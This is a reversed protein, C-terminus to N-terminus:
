GARRAPEMRPTARPSRARVEMATTGQQVLKVSEDDKPAEVPPGAASAAAPVTAMLTMGPRAGEAGNHLHACYKLHAVM